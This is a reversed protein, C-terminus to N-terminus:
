DLLGVPFKNFSKEFFLRGPVKRSSEKIIAELSERFSKESIRWLNRWVSIEDLVWRSIKALTRGSIQCIRSPNNLSSELFIGLFTIMFEALLGNSIQRYIRVSIERSEEPSKKLIRKEIWKRMLEALSELSFVKLVVGGLNRDSLRSIIRPNRLLNRWGHIEEPINKKLIRPVSKSSGHSNLSADPTNWPIESLRVPM